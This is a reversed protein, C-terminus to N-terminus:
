LSHDDQFVKQSHKFGDPLLSNVIRKAAFGDGYVNCARSAQNYRKEDEILCASEALIREPNTGVLKCIGADVAEPRETVNRAVLVPKGLATAEEQIGGSDSIVFRARKMLHLFKVYKIPEILHVNRINGLMSFVPQRVNPNLHVPYVIHYDSFKKAIKKLALCIDRFGAGFSERRHATVLIIPADSPVNPLDPIAQPPKRDLVWYMADIITNGTVVISDARFGEQLLINKAHTTPAFHLDAVVSILKRNIEEPFPAYKRQTRLGAEVHGVAIRLHFAALSAAFATSTDGQILVYDPQEQEIVKGIGRLVGSVIENLSQGHKMLDLDYDPTIDFVGLAQDQMERHQATTCVVTAFESPHKKLEAIVPALKLAEPRTGFAIMIKVPNNRSLKM